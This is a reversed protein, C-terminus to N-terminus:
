GWVFTVHWVVVLTVLVFVPRNKCHCCECVSSFLSLSRVFFCDQISKPKNTPEVSEILLAAPLYHQQTYILELPRIHAQQIHETTIFHLNNHNVYTCM